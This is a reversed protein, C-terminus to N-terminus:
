LFKASGRSWRVAHTWDYKGKPLEDGQLAALAACYKLFSRRSLGPFPTEM